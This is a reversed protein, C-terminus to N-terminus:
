AGGMRIENHDKEGASVWTRFVKSTKLLEAPSGDLQVKGNELWVVRDARLAVETDHTVALTTKGDVLQEIADMVLGASEPDLGTTAEDLM